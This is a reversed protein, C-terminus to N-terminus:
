EKKIRKSIGNKIKNLLPFLYFPVIIGSVLGTLLRLTNDSERLGVLQTLGDIALPAILLILYIPPLMKDNNFKFFILYLLGGLLMGVYIGLCRACVSMKYGLLGDLNMVINSKTRNSTDHEICDKISYDEYICLSRATLQHCTPAYVIYSVDALTSNDMTLMPTYVISGVVIAMILTYLAWIIVGGQKDLNFDM